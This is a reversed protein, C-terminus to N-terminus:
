IAKGIIKEKKSKPDRERLVQRQWKWPVYAFSAGYKRANLDMLAWKALMPQEAARVNDDWQFSLLENNIKAGLADGGSRPILRGEPKNALLRAGKEYLATFIRPDFVMSRYPWSSEPIYSRFLVDKSDWDVRRRNVDQTAMAYHRFCETFFQREQDKGMVPTELEGKPKMYM